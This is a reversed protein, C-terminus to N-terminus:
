ETLGPITLQSLDIDVSGYFYSVLLVLVGIGLAFVILKKLIKFLLFTAVCVGLVLGIGMWAKSPMEAVIAKELQVSEGSKITDDSNRSAVPDLIIGINGPVWQNVSAVIFRTRKGLQGRLEDSMRLVAVEEGRVLRFETVEGVEKGSIVVRANIDLDKVADGRGLIVFPGSAGTLILVAGVLAACIILGGVVSRRLPPLNFSRRSPEDDYDLDSDLDSPLDDLDDDLDDELDLDDFDDDIMNM